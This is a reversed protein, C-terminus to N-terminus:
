DDNPLYWGHERHYMPAKWNDNDWYQNKRIAEDFIYLLNHCKERIDDSLAPNNFGEWQIKNREANLEELSANNLWASSYKPTLSKFFTLLENKFHYTVVATLEISLLVGATILFKKHKEHRTNIFVNRITSNKM